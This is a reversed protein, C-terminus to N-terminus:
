RFERVMDRLDVQYCYTGDLFVAVPGRMAVLSPEIPKNHLGVFDVIGYDTFDGSIHLRFLYFAEPDDYGGDMMVFRSDTCFSRSGRVPLQWSSVVQNHYIYVLPFATYYYCWVTDDETVNLAYCDAIAFAPDEHEFEWRINGKKDWRVLGSSGIPYINKKNGPKWGNAGLIGDDFYSIWIDGNPTTQVDDIGDGLLFERQLRGRHNFVRGNLDATGQSTLESRICVLLLEGGPLPQVIHYNWKERRISYTAIKKGNYHIIDYQKARDSRVRTFQGDETRFQVTSSVTLIYLDFNPGLSM